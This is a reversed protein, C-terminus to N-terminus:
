APTEAATEEEVFDQADVATETSRLLEDLERRDKVSDAGSSMYALMELVRLTESM